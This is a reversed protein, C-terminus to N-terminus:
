KLRELADNFSCHISSDIDGGVTNNANATALKSKMKPHRCAVAVGDEKTHNRGWCVQSGCVFCLM